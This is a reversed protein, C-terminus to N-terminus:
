PPLPATKKKLFKGLEESIWNGDLLDDGLEPEMYQSAQKRRHVKLPPKIIVTPKM